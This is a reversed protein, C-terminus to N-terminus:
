TRPYADTGMELADIGQYEVEPPVRNGLVRDVLRFFGYAAGFVFVANTAIGVLQAVLQGPDGFLLGRVPGGV